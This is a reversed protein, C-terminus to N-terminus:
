SGVNEMSAREDHIPARRSRLHGGRRGHLVAQIEAAASLAIEEPTETGIDLGVPGFLRDLQQETPGKGQERLEEIMRATREKPGLLGIYPIPTELLQATIERDRLYTHNMVLAATFADPAIHKDLAEPHMLFRHGDADPFRRALFEAPKRGIIEVEWAMQGAVDILAQVDHGEGFVLLRTPPRVIELLIEATGDERDLRETQWRYPQPGTREVGLLREAAALVGARVSPDTLAGSVDGEEDLLVHRGLSPTLNGTAAIVTALVGRRRSELCRGLLDLVSEEAGAPVPEILLHVIGDCGTGFGLVLDDEGLEFPLLRPAGQAIVDLAQGAVEGELCGGSITGSTKGDKDVLMRAGPRRYTSGGIKVVTALAFPEGRERLLRARALIDLLERM